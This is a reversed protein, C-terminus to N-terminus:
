YKNRKRDNQFSYVETNILSFLDRNETYDSIFNKIFSKRARLKKKWLVDIEEIPLNLFSIINKTFMFKKGFSLSTM